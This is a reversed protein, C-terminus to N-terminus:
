LRTSSKYASDMLLSVPKLATAQSLQSFKWSPWHESPVEARIPSGAEDVYIFVSVITSLNVSRNNDDFAGNLFDSIM